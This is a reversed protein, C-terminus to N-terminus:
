TAFVLGAQMGAPTYEDLRVRLSAERQPEFLDHYVGMESEDDAGRRIEDGCCAILRCYTPTGYRQSEFEPQVRLLVRRSEEQRAALALTPDIGQLAIDPQCRHRRPTRSGHPAYSYRVCGPQRRAVEVQSTFIMNEALEIAHVLVQGIVTARAITLVAFALSGTSSGIAIREPGTADVITDSIVIRLPDNRFEDAVVQIAGIISYRIDLTASTGDLIISPESPRRPECECTLGWGPVLTCHRLTLECLDAARPGEESTPGQIALGRGTVILGELLVRSGPGGRITMADSQDPKRDFLRVVPRVRDAARLHLTTGAGLEMEVPGPYAGSELLEIVGVRPGNEETSDAKWRKLADEITSFRDKGLAGAFGASHVWYYAAGEPRALNRAYEGGGFLAPFGYHYSVSVHQPRQRPPFVIRGRQPDVLVHGRPALYTWNDLDAPIIRDAPIPQIADRTPWNPAYIALSAAAGYVAPSAGVRQARGTNVPAELLARQIAVPYVFEPLDKSDASGPQAPHVFLATDNGLLSFTYCQAGFEEHQYASTKTVSLSQLRFVFVGISGINYWGPVHHSGIRRIDATHALRDFPGDIQALPAPDHLDVIRGRDPHRHDLHQTWDLRRYFEVAVAQWGAVDRALQALLALTGKRRRHAVTNSVDRRPSYAPWLPSARLAGRSAAAGAQRVPEWGILDGIYPVVWEACTEIFWDDYQQRIDGEVIAVQGAITRLLDRLAFNQQVDRLQYIAPLLAYLRDEASPVTM